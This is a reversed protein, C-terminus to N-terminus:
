PKDPAARGVTVLTMREPQLHRKLAARVQELTVAELYSVYRDLYDLPLKYFGILALNDLIRANNELRMPFSEILNRRAQELAVADPGNAVYQAIVKRMVAVAETARASGTQLGAVFPGPFRMPEFHSDVSYSLGRRERIEDFLRSVVGDGGLVHNGLLLAFYDPDDRAIGLQGLFIHTQESAFEIHQTVPQPQPSVPPLPPAPEGTPLAGSVREAMAQATARDLAGVILILANRAVYHRQHFAALAGHDIRALSEETGYAPASYPHQGYLARTFAQDGVYAPSQAMRQLAVRMRQRQRGVAAAEFRPKALMECLLGLAADREAASSLSRLSVTAYQSAVAASLKAGTDDVAAHFADVDLRATGEDLLSNAFAALGPLDGDRLSGADFMVELDFM